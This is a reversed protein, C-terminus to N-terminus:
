RRDPSQTERYAFGEHYPLTIAAILGGGEHPRLTLAAADGYLHSLRARINSLGIGRGEVQVGPGEDAVEVLLKDDQHAARIHLRATGDASIGHTIANEALPQVIMGPLRASLAAPDIELAFKLRDRLLITQIDLYHELFAVEDRLAIEHQDSQDLSKRLLQSLQTVVQDASKPDSYGLESIANLTNYLFHPNLQTRLRRIEAQRLRARLRQRDRWLVGVLVFAGALLVWPIIEFQVNVRGGYRSQRRAGTAV